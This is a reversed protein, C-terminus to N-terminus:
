LAPSKVIWVAGEGQEVYSFPSQSGPAQVMHVGVTSSVLAWATTAQPFPKVEYVTGGVFVTVALIFAKKNMRWNYIWEGFYRHLPVTVGEELAVLDSRVIAAPLKSRPFPVIFLKQKKTGNQAVKKKMTAEPSNRDQVNM